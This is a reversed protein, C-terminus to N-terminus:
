GSPSPADARRRWAGHRRSRCGRSAPSTGPSANSPLRRRRPAAAARRARRGTSTRGDGIRPSRTTRRWFDDPRGPAMRPLLGRGRAASSVSRGLEGSRHDPCPDVPNEISSRSCALAWVSTSERRAQGTVRFGLNEYRSVNSESYTTIAVSTSLPDVRSRELVAELLARAHGHSDKALVDDAQRGM